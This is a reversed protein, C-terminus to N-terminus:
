VLGERRGVFGGVKELRTARRKLARKRETWHGKEAETEFAPLIYRGRRVGIM